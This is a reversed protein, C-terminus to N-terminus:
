RDPEGRGGRSLRAAQREWDGGLRAAMRRTEDQGALADVVAATLAAFFPRAESPAWHCGLAALTAEDMSDIRAWEAVIERVDHPAARGTWFFVDTERAVAEWADLFREFMEMVPHSVPGGILEPRHKLATLIQRTNAVWAGAAASAVPGVRVEIDEDAAAVVGNRQGGLLQALTQAVEVAVPSKTLVGIAGATAAAEELGAEAAATYLVIDTFPSRARILPIAELGGMVPMHRDLVVLDPRLAGCLEVAEHGNGAEGVVDFRGDNGLVIRLLVRVDESDDVVVTRLVPDDGMRGQGTGLSM